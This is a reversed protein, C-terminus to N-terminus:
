HAAAQAAEDAWYAPLTDYPNPLKDTTVFIAGAGKASAAAVDKTMQAKSSGYVIHAFRSKAYGAQWAAPAYHGYSAASGEFVVFRDAVPLSAYAELTNTGPNGVVVYAPNIAKIYNYASQYFDIHAGAADNTMEDIFFGDIAYMSIYANIDATVENLPRASYRTSVYGIVKGGAQHVNAIAATYNPDTVSGPGSAPNLIAVVPAHAAATALQPWFNKKGAPYFYAPVVLDLAFSPAAFAAALALLALRRM